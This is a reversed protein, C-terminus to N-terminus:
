DEAEHPGSGEGGVRDDEDPVGEERDFMAATESLESADDGPEKAEKMRKGRLSHRTAKDMDGKLVAVAISARSQDSMGASYAIRQLADHEAHAMLLRRNVDRWAMYQTSEMVELVFGVSWPFSKLAKDKSTLLMRVADTIM